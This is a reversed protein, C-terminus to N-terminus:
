YLLFSYSGYFRNLSRAPLRSTLSKDTSFSSSFFLSCCKLISIQFVYFNFFIPFSYFRLTVSITQGSVQYISSPYYKVTSVRPMKLYTSCHLQYSWPQISLGLCFLNLLYFLAYVCCLLGTSCLLGQLM